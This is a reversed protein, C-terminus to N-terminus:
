FLTNSHMAKAMLSVERTAAIRRQLEEIEDSTKKFSEAYVEQDDESLTWWSVSLLSNIEDQAQSLKAELNQM